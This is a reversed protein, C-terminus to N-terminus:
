LTKRLPSKRFLDLRILYVAAVLLAFNRAIYIGYSTESGEKTGFCGCSIDLGRAWAVAHLGIFLALLGAIWLGSARRLWPTLLGLACVLELWPLALGVWSALSGDIVRYAIVSDTFAIPDQIKPLAASVFVGALVLRLILAVIPLRKIAAM